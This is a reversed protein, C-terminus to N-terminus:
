AAGVADTDELQRIVAEVDWRTSRGIKIPTIIGRNRLNYLTRTSCGLVVALHETTCINRDKKM